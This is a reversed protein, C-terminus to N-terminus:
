KAPFETEPKRECVSASQDVRPKRGTTGGLRAHPKEATPHQSSNRDLQEILRVCILVTRLPSDRHITITTLHIEDTGYM